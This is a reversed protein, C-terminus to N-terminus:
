TPVVGVGCESCVFANIASMGFFLNLAGCHPCNAGCFEKQAFLMEALVAAVDSAPVTKILSECENCVLDAQDGRFVPILCGCCDKGGASQSLLSLWFLLRLRL